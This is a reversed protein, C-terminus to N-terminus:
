PSILLKVSTSGVKARVPASALDGPKAIADGGKSIRAILQVEGFRSLRRDPVMADADSLKFSVPLEAATFRKVAL